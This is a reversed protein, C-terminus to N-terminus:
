CALDLKLSRWINLYNLNWHAVIVTDFNGSKM